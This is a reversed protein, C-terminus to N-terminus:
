QLNMKRRQIRQVVFVRCQTSQSPLVFLSAPLRLGNARIIFIREFFLSLSFLHDSYNRRSIVRDRGGKIARARAKLLDAKTGSLRM